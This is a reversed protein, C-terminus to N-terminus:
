GLPRLFNHRWGFLRVYGIVAYPRFGAKDHARLAPRNEPLTCRILRRLGAERCHRLLVASMAPAIGQGRQTPCTLADFSYAEDAALSLDRGLYDIHVRRRALWCTFVLRGQRRAAFCAHGAAFRQRIRSGDALDHLTLYEGLDAPTLRHVTIPCAAPLDPVPWALDRQLLLLRRYGLQGLAKFALVRWGEDRLVQFPRLLTRAHVMMTPERYNLRNLAAPITGAPPDTLNLSAAIRPKARSPHNPFAPHM